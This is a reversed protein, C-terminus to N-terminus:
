TGSMNKRKGVDEKTHAEWRASKRGELIVGEPGRWKKKKKKLFTKAGRTQVKVHMERSLLVGGWFDPPVKHKKKKKVYDNDYSSKKKKKCSSM